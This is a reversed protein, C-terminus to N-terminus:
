KVNRSSHFYKKWFDSPLYYYNICNVIRYDIAGYQHIADRLVDIYVRKAPSYVGKGSKDKARWRTDSSKAKGAKDGWNYYFIHRLQEKYNKPPFETWNSDGKLDLMEDAVATINLGRLIKSYRIMKKYQKIGIGNMPAIWIKIFDYPNNARIGKRAYRERVLMMYLFNEKSAMFLATGSNDSLYGKFKLPKKKAAEVAPNEPRYRVMM